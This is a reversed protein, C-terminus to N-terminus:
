SVEFPNGAFALRSSWALMRSRGVWKVRALPATLRHSCCKAQKQAWSACFRCNVVGESMTIAPSPFAVTVQERADPLISPRANRAENLMNGEYHDFRIVSQVAGLEQGYKAM